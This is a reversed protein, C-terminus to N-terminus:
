ERKESFKKAKYAYYLQLFDKPKLDVVYDMLFEVVSEKAFYDGTSRRLSKLYDNFKADVGTDIRISTSKKTDM